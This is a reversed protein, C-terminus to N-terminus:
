KKKWLNSFIENYKSGLILTNIRLCAKVKDVDGKAHPKEIRVSNGDAVWFHYPPKITLERAVIRNQSENILTNFQPVKELKTGPEFLINFHVGKGVANRMIALMQPNEFVKPSLDTVINVSNVSHSVLEICTDLADEICENHELKYTRLSAFVVISISLALASGFIVIEAIEM